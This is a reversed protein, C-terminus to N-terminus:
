PAYFFEAGARLPPLQVQAMFTGIKNDLSGMRVLIVTLLVMTVFLVFLLVLLLGTNTFDRSHENDTEM